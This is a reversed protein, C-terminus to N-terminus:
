DHCFCDGGPDDGLALPLQALVADRFGRYTPHPRNPNRFTGGVADEQAIWWDAAAPDARIIKALIGVGKMFCLDCNGALAKGNINPLRLDFNQARWFTSVEAATVGADALPVRVTWREKGAENAHRIKAVRRPEDARLGIVNQWHEWGLSRAYDRMVRVKLEQTCFRANRNPTYQKEAILQAFPSGNRAATAHDVVKFRKGHEGPVRELWVIPAWRECDRVFDLTEPREKGTNAFTVIVDPPLDGGHAQVIRWLMYGSTRGGSFSVLAPGEIRFPETATPDTPPM